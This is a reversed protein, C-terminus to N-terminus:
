KSAMWASFQKQLEEQVTELGAKNLEDLAENINEDYDLYGYQIPVLKETIVSQMRAVEAKVPTQDFNFGFLKSYRAGRDWNKIREVTADSVFEPFRMYKVNRFMWEYFMSDKTLVQVRGDPTLDYHRGKEGLVIFDYNEQDRYVWNLFQMTKEPEGCTAPIVFVNSGGTIIYKPKEPYLLYENYIGGPVNQALSQQQEIDRTIAGTWIASRGSNMRGLEDTNALFDESILKERNWIRTYSCFQRFADSSYYSYIRDDNATEDVFFWNNLLSFDVSLNGQAMRIYPKYSNAVFPNASLGSSRLKRAFNTVDDITRLDKVGLQDMLDQRVCLTGFNESTPTNTPVAMLKGDLAVHKWKDTPNAKMLDQGYEELLDDLPLITKKAYWNQVGQPGHWAIDITQGSTMILDIKTFYESWPSFSIDLHAGIEGDLRPNLSNDIFDRWTPNEEGPMVWVISAPGKGPKQASPDNGGAAFGPAAIGFSALVIFVFLKRSRKKTKM